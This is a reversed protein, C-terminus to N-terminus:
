PSVAARFLDLVTPGWIAAGEPLCAFAGHGERETNGFAPFVVARGKGARELVPGLVRSPGLDFDNQAQVVLVPARTPPPRSWALTSGGPHERVSARARACGALVLVLALALTKVSSM